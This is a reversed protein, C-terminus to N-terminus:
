PQANSAISNNRYEEEAVPFKKKVFFLDNLNNRVENNAPNSDLAKQYCYRSLAYLRKITESGQVDVSSTSAEAALRTLLLQYYCQGLNNFIKAHLVANLGAAANDQRNHLELGRKFERIALQHNELRAYAIGLNNRAVTSRPSDHVTSLWFSLENDWIYNRTATKASYCILVAPIMLAVATRTKHLKRVHTQIYSLRFAACPLLMSFCVTGLYLRHELAPISLPFIGCVPILSLFVWLMSFPIEKCRNSSLIAIAALCTLLLCAYIFYHGSSVAGTIDPVASQFAPFLLMRFYYAYTAIIRFVTDSLEGGALGIGTEGIVIIRTFYYAASIIVLGAYDQMMCRRNDYYYDILVLLLPLILASEKTFLAGMYCFLYGSYFLVRLWGQFRKWYLHLIITILAFLTLLVDNRGSIWAVAESQVPHAAFFLSALLAIKSQKLLLLIFLYVLLANGIHLLVNTFHYGFPNTGWLQYDIIFSATLLPRYYPTEGFFPKYFCDYLNKWNSLYTTNDLVLGRDDWIFYGNLSNWYLALTVAFVIALYIAHCHNDSKNM